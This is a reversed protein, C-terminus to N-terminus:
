GAVSSEAAPAQTALHARVLKIHEYPVRGGLREFVTSLPCPGLEDLAAAVAASTEDPVWAAIDAPKNELVFDVLYGNVTSLARQTEAAVDAVVRKQAFMEYARLKAGTVARRGVARPTRPPPPPAVDTSLAHERCYAGIREVFVDGFQERKREGVGVVRRLGDLATPRRCALERLTADNFIVFPPVGRQEALERRLARLDDFLGRDVGEWSEIAVAARRAPGAARTLLRVTRTGGMVAWSQENLRLLPFEDATRDLIGQDALQYILDVVTQEPLERLLGFTSLKDHGLRRIRESGAGRLVDTVHGVGFREQVRAVCSLIKQATLTADEVGVLEELCVDCAGCDPQDYPQGFHASLAAHRCEYSSALRRMDEMLSRATAAVEPPVGDNGTMKQWRFVDGPSFFLVCEAELGDRGARGCEQQYHEISRPMATHVVFRVDGRDIGMGFAVTAVIVDIKEDSFRDQTERRSEPTMGAHYHEARVGASQLYASLQETERRSICYVIGAQRPHRQVVDNTQAYADQRPVVRFVLNPRDFRGTLVLPDRLRLQVVIDERVRQTATATFAHISAEPFRERLEALRRYEPRFDHGWHSICHAEDIAFARVRVEQLLQMFGGGLLREPAAFLLRCRGGRAEAGARRLAEPTLGSHLAVAPYGCATLGDVQDKMLAVLPSVVVDCREALLPPVQYCISKGGGTPMVVLSDRRQLSADIAERQLPRLGDFGWYRRVADLIPDSAVAATSRTM